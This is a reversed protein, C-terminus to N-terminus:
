DYHLELANVFNSTISAPVSIGCRKADLELAYRVPWDGFSCVRFKGNGVIRTLSSTMKDLAQGLPM